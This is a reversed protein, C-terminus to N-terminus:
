KPPRPGQPKSLEPEWRMRGGPLEAAAPAAPVPGVGGPWGGQPPSGGGDACCESWMTRLASM